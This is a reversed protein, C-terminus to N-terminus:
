FSFRAGIGVTSRGDVERRIPRLELRANESPRTERSQARVLSTVGLAVSIGGVLMDTVGLTHATGTGDKKTLGLAIDATGAVIGLIGRGRLAGRSGDQLNLMIAAGNAMALGVSAMAFGESVQSEPDPFGYAPQIRAAEDVTLGHEDLWEALGPEDALEPLYANNRTRAVNDVLDVSGTSAILYAMACLTGHADRFYPMRQGPFHENKPFRGVASYERLLNLLEARRSRQVPTLYSVDRALLEQKVQVFHARLRAAESEAFSDRSADWIVSGAVLLPLALATLLRNDSM